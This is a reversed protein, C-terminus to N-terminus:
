VKIGKGKAVTFQQAIPPEGYHSHFLVQVGMVVEVEKRGKWEVVCVYPEKTLPHMKGWLLVHVQPPPPKVKFPFQDPSSNIGATMLTIMLRAIFVPRPTLQGRELILISSGGRRSRPDFGSSWISVSLESIIIGSYGSYRPNTQTTLAM